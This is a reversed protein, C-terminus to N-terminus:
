GRPMPVLLELNRPPPPPLQVLQLSVHNKRVRRGHAHLTHLLSAFVVYEQPSESDDDDEDDEINEEDFMKFVDLDETPLTSQGISFVM